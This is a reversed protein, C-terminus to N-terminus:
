KPNNGSMREKIAKLRESWKKAKDSPLVEEPKFDSLAVVQGSKTTCVLVSVKPWQKTAERRELVSGVLIDTPKVKVQTCPQGVYPTNEPGSVNIETVLATGPTVNGKSFKKSFSGVGISASVGGSAEFPFQEGVQLASGKKKEAASMGVFLNKATMDWDVTPDKAIAAGATGLTAATAALLTTAIGARKM